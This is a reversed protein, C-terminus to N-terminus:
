AAQAMEYNIPSKNGISSHHRNRNYDIEIYEFVATRMQKRTKIKEGHIAEVKLSHFFSEACANDYCNGKDSMSSVLGNGKLQQQFRKSCYQSGRDTHMITGKLKGRSDIAMKQAACVLEKTMRESMSWGIVKRSFLDLVVALYLWGEDTWLYTIDGCWKMNIDDCEFDQELLNPAFPLKHRSNTTSKFKRGAKAVLDQRQMSAAVTNEAISFGAEHLDLTLRPSGYRYKRHEFALLVAQDISQRREHRETPNDLRKTWDYYGSKSVKLWRCQRKICFVDRQEKIFAYKV